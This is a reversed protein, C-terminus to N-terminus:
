LLRLSQLESITKKYESSKLAEAYEEPSLVGDDGEYKRLIEAQKQAIADAKQSKEKDDEYIKSYLESKVKYVEVSSVDGDCNSDYWGLGLVDEGNQAEVIDKMEWYEQLLTGMEESQLAANYEYEDLYGDNGAYRSYIEGIQVSIEEGRQQFISNGEFIRSCTASWSKYMEIGSTKGDNNKDVSSLGINADELDQKTMNQKQYEINKNINEQSINRIDM